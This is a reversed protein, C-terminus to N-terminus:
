DDAWWLLSFLCPRAGFVWCLQLLWLWSHLQCQGAKRIAPSHPWEVILRGLVALWYAGVCLWGCHLVTTGCWERGSCGAYSVKLVVTILTGCCYRCVLLLEAPLLFPAHVRVVSFRKYARESLPCVFEVVVPDGATSSVICSWETPYMVEFGHANNTYTTFAVQLLGVLVTKVCLPTGADYLVIRVAPRCGWTYYLHTYEISARAPAPCGRPCPHSRALTRAPPPVESASAATSSRNRSGGDLTLYSITDGAWGHLQQQRKWSTDVGFRRTCRAWLTLSGRGCTFGPGWFVWVCLPLLM